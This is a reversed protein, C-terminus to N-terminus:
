APALSYQEPRPSGPMCLGLATQTLHSVPPCQMRHGCADAPPFSLQEGWASGPGLRLGEAV